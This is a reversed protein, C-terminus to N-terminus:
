GASTKSVTEAIKHLIPTIITISRELSMLNIDKNESIFQKVVFKM